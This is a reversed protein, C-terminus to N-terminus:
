TYFKIEELLNVEREPDALYGFPDVGEDRRAYQQHDASDHDNAAEAHALVTAPFLLHRGNDPPLGRLRLGVGDRGGLGDRLRLGNHAVRAHM